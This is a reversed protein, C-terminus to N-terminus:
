EASISHHKEGQWDHYKLLITGVVAILVISVSVIITNM